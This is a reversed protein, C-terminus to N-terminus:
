KVRHIHPWGPSVCTRIERFYDGDRKHYPCAFRRQPSEPTRRSKKRDPGRGEDSGDSDNGDDNGDLPTPGSGRTRRKRRGLSGKDNSSAGHSSGCDNDKASLVSKEGSHKKIGSLLSDVISNFYKSQVVAEIMIYIVQHSIDSRNEGSELTFQSELISVCTDIENEDNNDKSEQCLSNSDGVLDADNLILSQNNKSSL